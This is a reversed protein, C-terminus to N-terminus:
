PTAGALHITPVQDALVIARINLRSQLELGSLVKRLYQRYMYGARCNCFEILGGDMQVARQEALTLIRIIEPAVALGYQCGECGHAWEPGDIQYASLSPM